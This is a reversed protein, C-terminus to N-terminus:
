DAVAGSRCNGECRPRGTSTVATMAAPVAGFLLASGRDGVQECHQLSPQAQPKPDHLVGSNAASAAFKMLRARSRTSMKTSPMPTAPAAMAVVM